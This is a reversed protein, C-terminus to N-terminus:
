KDLPLQKIEINRYFVEAGEQQFLIQGGTLPIWKGDKFRELHQIRNNVKGNVIYTATDGKCILEVTNWDERLDCDISRHLRRIGGSVGQTYLVGGASAEKFFPASIHNTRVVKTNDNTVVLTEMNTTAPDVTTTVRTNVTFIDGTDGEQVQLEVGNPWVGDPGFCHYLVGCDRKLGVKGGFKKTGWKYQFRLDYNAYEKETIIYGFPQRSKDPADKYMHIMGDHVQFLHNPDDSKKNGSVIYFNSFDNGNFLPTFGDDAWASGALSVILGLLYFKKM